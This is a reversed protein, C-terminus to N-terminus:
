KEHPMFACFRSASPRFEIPLRFSTRVGGQSLALTGRSPRVQNIGRSV